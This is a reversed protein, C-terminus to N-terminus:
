YVFLFVRYQLALFKTEIHNRKLLVSRLVCGWYLFMHQTHVTVPFGYILNSLYSPLLLFKHPPHVGRQRSHNNRTSQPHSIELAARPCPNDAVPMGRKSAEQPFVRGIKRKRVGIPRSVIRPTLRNRGHQLHSIEPTVKM